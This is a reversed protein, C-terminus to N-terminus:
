LRHRVHGIQEVFQSFLSDDLKRCNGISQLSFPLDVGTGFLLPPLYPMCRVMTSAIM